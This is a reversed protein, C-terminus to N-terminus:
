KLGYVTAGDSPNLRLGTPYLSSLEVVQTAIPTFELVGSVLEGAEALLGDGDNDSAAVLRLQEGPPLNGLVFSLDTQVLTWQTVETPQLNSSRPVVAIYLRPSRSSVAGGGALGFGYRLDYGVVGLDTATAALTQRVLSAPTGSSLALAALGSVLPAAMSTGMRLGYGAGLPSSGGGSLDTSLIGDPVRDRNQDQTTDGGYASLQLGLGTNAYWPQYTTSPGALSTVSIVGPLSAPSAVGGGSNGTAAVVVVGSNIARSVAGEISASTGGDVGLSLNVVQAPNPNCRASPSSVPSTATAQATTVCSIDNLLGAAWLIGQAVDFTSGGSAGPLARVPLVKASPAAGVVRGRAAVLGAVHTGHGYGDAPDPDGSVFDWGPLLNAQLDPHASLVGSDVVAVVVGAGQSRQWAAPLGMLPLYWQEAPAAPVSPTNQSSLNQGQNQREVNLTRREIHKPGEVPIAESGLVRVTADWELRRGGVVTELRGFAARAAEASSFELRSVGLLPEHRLSRLGELRQGALVAPDAYVLFAKRPTPASSAFSQGLLGQQGNGAGQDRSVAAPLLVSGRLAGAERVLNVAESSEGGVLVRLQFAGYTQAIPLQLTLQSGELTPSLRQGDVELWVGANALQSFETPWGSGSVKLRNGNELTANDIKPLVQVLGALPFKNGTWTVRLPHSGAVFTQPVSFRLGGPIPTAELTEGGLSLRFGGVETPRPFQGYATVELGPTVPSPLVTTLRYVPPEEGCAALLGALGLLAGLLVPPPKLRFLRVPSPM